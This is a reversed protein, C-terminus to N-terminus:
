QLLRNLSDFDKYIIQKKINKFFVWLSNNHFTEGLYILIAILKWVVGKKSNYLLNSLCITENCLPHILIKNPYYPNQVNDSKILIIDRILSCKSNILFRVGLCLRPTNLLSEGLSNISILPEMADLVHDSM